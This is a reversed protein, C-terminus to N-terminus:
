IMVALSCKGGSKRMRDMMWSQGQKSGHMDRNARQFRGAITEEMYREVMAVGGLVDRWRIGGVTPFVPGLDYFFRVDRM